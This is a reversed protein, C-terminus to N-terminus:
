SYFELINIVVPIAGSDASINLSLPLVQPVRVKVRQSTKVGHAITKRVTTAFLTQAQPTQCARLMTDETAHTFLLRKTRSLCSCVPEM